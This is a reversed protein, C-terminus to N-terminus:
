PGIIHCNPLAKKLEALGRKTVQTSALWLTQLGALGELHALGADTVQTGGLYLKQLGVLGELHALGADTVQMRSLHLEQLGTLGKLHTLGADTVQSADLDLTRLGALGELYALGADTVHTNDLKLSTLNTLAGILPWAADPIKADQLDLETKALLSEATVQDVGVRRKKAVLKRLPTWDREKVEGPAELEAARGVDVPEEEAFPIRMLLGLTRLTLLRRFNPGTPAKEQDIRYEPYEEALKILPHPAAASPKEGPGRSGAVPRATKDPAAVSQEDAHDEDPPIAAPAALEQERLYLPKDPNAVVHRSWQRFFARGPERLCLDHVQGFEGEPLKQLVATILARQMSQAVRLEHKEDEAGVIATNLARVVSRPNIDAIEGIIGQFIPQHAQGIRQWLSTRPLQKEIYAAVQEDRPAIPVEVQFMKDLYQRAKPAIEVAEDGLSDKYHKMVVADIVQRDVGVIVVLNPINLYLKIAELVQLAITPLCRDLDDIFIVLRSDGQYCQKIWGELTHEFVNYYADQPTVHKGYEEIIGTLAEKLDVDVSAKAGEGGMEGRFKLSSLVRVFSGGLFKGFQRAAKLIKATDVKEFDMSALIVEAILGKWVDERNQYKWPYFWCTDVKLRQQKGDGRDRLYDDLWRMSSTKGTGWGGSVMVSFPTETTKSLVAEYIPKLRRVLAFADGAIAADKRLAADNFLILESDAPGTMNNAAM